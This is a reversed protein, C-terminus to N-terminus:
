RIEFVDDPMRNVRRTLETAYAARQDADMVKESDHVATTVAGTVSPTFRTINDNLDVVDFIVDADTAFSVSNDDDATVEDDPDVCTSSSCHIRRSGTQLPRYTYEKLDDGSFSIEAINNDDLPATITVKVYRINFVIPERTDDPGDNDDCSVLTATLLVFRLIAWM